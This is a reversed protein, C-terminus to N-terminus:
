AQGTFSHNPLSVVSPMVGNPQSLRLVEVCVFLRIPQFNSTPQRNLQNLMVLTLNLQFILFIITQFCRKDQVISNERFLRDTKARQLDDVDNM